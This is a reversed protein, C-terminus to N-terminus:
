GICELFYTAHLALEWGIMTAFTFMRGVGVGVGVELRLVKRSSFVKRWVESENGASAISGWLSVCLIYSCVLAGSGM